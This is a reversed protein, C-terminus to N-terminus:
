AINLRIKSNTITLRKPHSIKEIILNELGLREMKGIMFDPQFMGCQDMRIRKVSNSRTNLMKM